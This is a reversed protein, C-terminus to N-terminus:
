KFFSKLDKWMPEIRKINDFIYDDEIIEEIEHVWEVNFTDDEYIINLM